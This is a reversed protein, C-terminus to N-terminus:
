FEVQVITGGTQPDTITSVVAHQQMLVTGSPSTWAPCVSNTSKLLANVSVACPMAVVTSTVSMKSTVTAALVPTTCLLTMAVLISFKRM